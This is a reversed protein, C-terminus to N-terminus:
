TDCKHCVDYTQKLAFCFHVDSQPQQLYSLQYSRGIM